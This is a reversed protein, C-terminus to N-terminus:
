QNEAGEVHSSKCRRGRDGQRRQGKLEQEGDKKRNREDSVIVLEGIVVILPVDAPIEREEGTGKQKTAPLAFDAQCPPDPNGGRQHHRQQRDVIPKGAYRRRAAEAADADIGALM